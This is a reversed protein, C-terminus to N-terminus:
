KLGLWRATAQSARRLSRGVSRSATALARDTQQEATAVATETHQGGTAIGDLAAGGGGIAAKVPAPSRHVPVIGDAADIQARVYPPFRTTMKSALQWRTSAIWESGNLPAGPEGLNILRTSKLAMMNQCRDGGCGGGCASRSLYSAHKDTSIWVEPGSDEAALTRAKAGHSADCVTGEHAAAHWLMAKSGDPALLASVQEVDLTHGRRGCDRSWLHYYHVEIWEGSRFVQGYLTGNRAIARPVASGAAFEAPLADCDKAGVQFRPVFRELLEQERGDDLGDRDADIGTLVALILTLLLVEWDYM